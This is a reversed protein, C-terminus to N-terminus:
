FRGRSSQESGTKTSSAVMCHACRAAAARPGRGAHDGKADADHRFRISQQDREGIEIPEAQIAARRDSQQTEGDACARGALVRATRRGNAACRGLMTTARWGLSRRHALSRAVVQRAREYVDGDRAVSPFAALAQKRDRNTVCSPRLLVGLFLKTWVANGEQFPCDSLVACM